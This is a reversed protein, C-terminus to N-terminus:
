ATGKPNSNLKKITIVLHKPNDKSGLDEPSAKARGDIRDFLDRKMEPKEMVDALYADVISEAVTNSTGPPVKGLKQRLIDVLSISGIPRGKPNLNNGKQFTM